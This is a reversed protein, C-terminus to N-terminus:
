LRQTAPELGARAVRLHVVSFFSACWHGLVVQTRFDGQGALLALVAVVDRTLIPTVIRVADLELLVTRTTVRVGQVLFSASRRSDGAM